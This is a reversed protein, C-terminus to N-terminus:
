LKKVKASRKLKGSNINKKLKQGKKIRKNETENSKIASKEKRKSDTKLKPKKKQSKIKLKTNEQSQEMKRKKKGNEGVNEDLQESWRTLYASEANAAVTDDAYTSSAHSEGSDSEYDKVPTIPVIEIEEKNVAEEDENENEVDMEEDDDFNFDELDSETLGMEKDEETLKKRRVIVEGDPMVTVEVGPMTSLEGEVPVAKKPLPPTVVPIEVENSNKLSIYIPIPNTDQIHVRLSRINEWGGPYLNSLNEAVALINEAIQHITQKTHGVKLSSKDGRGNVILLTKSLATNVEKKLDKAKRRKIIKKGLLGQIHGTVRGDALFTDFQSILREKLEFQDYEVQIQRLPIIQSIGKVNHNELITQYHQVTEEHDIRKGKKLNPVFLCVESFKDVLPHPLCFRYNKRYVEPKMTPIRICQVIMHVPQAEDMFLPISKSKSKKASLKLMASLSNKVSELNLNHSVKTIKNMSEEIKPKVGALDSAKKTEQERKLSDLANDMKNLRKITSKHSSSEEVFHPKSKKLRNTKSGGVSAKSFGKAHKRRRPLSVSSKDQKKRGKLRKKVSLEKSMKMVEVGRTKM